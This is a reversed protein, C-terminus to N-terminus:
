SYFLEYNGFGQPIFTNNTSIINGNGGVIKEVIYSTASLLNIFTINGNINGIISIGEYYNYLTNNVNTSSIVSSLSNIFGQSNNYYVNVSGTSTTLNDIYGSGYIEIGLQSNYLSINTANGTLYYGFLGGNTTVNIINNYATEYLGFVQGVKIYDNEINNGSSTLYIGFINSEINNNIINNNNGNNIKIGFINSIVNSNEIVNNVANGDFDIGFIQGNINSNNIIVNYPNDDYIGWVSSQINTNEITSNQIYGYIGGINGNITSNYVNVVSPNKVDIGFLGSNINDNILNITGNEVNIAFLNTNININQITVNSSLVDIVPLGPNAPEFITNQGLLTINQGQPNIILNVLYVGPSFVVVPISSNIASDIIGQIQTNSLTPNIVSVNYANQSIYIVQPNTYQNLGYNNYAYVKYWISYYGNSNLKAYEQLIGNYLIDSCSNIITVWQNSTQNLLQIQCYDQGLTNDYVNASVELLWINEQTGNSPTPYTYSVNFIPSPLTYVYIGTSNTIGEPNSTSLEITINGGNPIINYLGPLNYSSNEYNLQIINNGPTVNINYTQGNITVNVNPYNTYFSINLQYYNSVSNNSPSIIYIQPNVIPIITITTSNTVGNSAVGTVTVSYTGPQINSNASVTLTVSANPTVTTNSLSCQLNSNSTSCSLTISAPTGGSLQTINIITSNSSGANVYMSSPGQISFSYPQVNVTITTSNTVGNQATGSITVSYTGPTISSSATVTLTVSANPTAQTSSLSCSLYSSNTSCSLSVPLPSGSNLQTINITASNSSGVYTNISSPGQISFSYPQVNVTITTSNTVGNSAVGTVTVSYTGPQINSNASVTLTVSANPTAQTSSLSCSLYSSNTSCSLTISLPSGSNLQNVYITTSNSYNTYVDISSPGQISFSYPQVNVTITTSNTVGNQATGSITVSYTGPTISSSATVTLTVSANPTVTTNSLSCQLNSNSTSCSLTVPLPTNGTLQNVYITTSNSYNTYVDISSPGTIDFTFVPFGLVLASVYETSGPGPGVNFSVSYTGPALDKCEAAYVSIQPSSTLFLQSCGNPLTVGGINGGNKTGGSSILILVTENQGSVTYSVTVPGPRNYTNTFTTLIVPVSYNNISVGGIAYNNATTTFSCTNTSSNGIVAYNGNNVMVNFSPTLTSGASSAVCYYINATSLTVSKAQASNSGVVDAGVQSYINFTSILLLLSVIAFYLIRKIGM